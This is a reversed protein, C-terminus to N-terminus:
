SSGVMLFFKFIAIDVRLPIYDLREVVPRTRELFQAVLNAHGETSSSNDAAAGIPQYHTLRANNRLEDDEDNRNPNPMIPVAGSPNKVENAIEWYRYPASLQSNIQLFTEVIWELVPAIYVKLDVKCSPIADVVDGKEDEKIRMDVETQMISLGM